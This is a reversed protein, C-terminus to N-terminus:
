KGALLPLFKKILSSAPLCIIISFLLCLPVIIWNSLNSAGIFLLFNSLWNLPYKHLIFLLLTDSGIKQMARSLHPTFKEIIKSFTISALIGFIASAFFFVFDGYRNEAMLVYNVDNALSTYYAVLLFLITTISYIPFHTKPRIFKTTQFLYGFLIFVIAMPVIDIGFPLNHGYLFSQITSQKPIFIALILFLLLVLPAKNQKKRKTLTVFILDLIILSLFLVPLFWLSSNTVSAISQHTGYIIKPITILSFNPFALIIGWLLYPLYIRHFRKALMQKFNFKSYDQFSLTMGSVFFFLPIHFAYIFKHLIPSFTPYPIHGVIVLLIAIARLIDIYVNRKKM